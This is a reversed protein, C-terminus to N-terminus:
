KESSDFLSKFMSKLDEASKKVSDTAEQATDQVAKASEKTTAVTEKAADLDLAEGVAEQATALTDAVTGQLGNLDFGALNPITTNMLARVVILSVLSYPNTINSYKEDLNIAFEKVMPNSANKSYDKYVVKGIKLELNDIQIEPTKGKEKAEPKEGGKQAEVVKLSDLNLEGKENKIVNFESLNIKVDKLHVKGRAISMLDYDVYIKPMNLMVRDKYGKPNMLILKNIDVLQNVLGLRFGSIKLELGTVFEVGKEVSTKILIDKLFAVAVVVVVVIALVIFLKKM